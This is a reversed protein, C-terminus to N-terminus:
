HLRAAGDATVHALRGGAITAVVRPQAPDVLVLDARMGEAITGRDKLGAAAAPNASVLAWARPLDLVGRGALILAARLMAPYFYDSSLVNCIGAEALRAASAWGLHSGGRVVNPCGMVVWDGADRAFQGVEEAMPFECIRAGRARFEQRTAITADDHSALAVGAGRAAAGIRELAAPVQDSRRAIRETLARFEALTMGARDSYKAGAVPDATKKLIAPTHDNFAVLHVRGAEIDALATDLADLNYAEWRLHVRMDCTWPRADLGDLLKRWQTVSRLGPEWSLTIGHFATTIGNALLQAETDALAVDVPFDVGPRPQVQREFADGHIDVIGPLVLLGSADVRKGDAPTADLRDIRANQISLDISQLGDSPLLVQGGTIRLETM